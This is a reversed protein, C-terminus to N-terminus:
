FSTHTSELLMYISFPRGRGQILHHVLPKALAVVHRINKMQLANKSSPANIKPFVNEQPIEFLDMKASVVLKANKLAHLLNLYMAHLNVHEVHISFKMRLAHNLLHHFQNVNVVTELLVLTVFVNILTKQTNAIRM